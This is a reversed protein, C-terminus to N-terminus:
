HSKDRNELAGDERLKPVRAPERATVEPRSRRAAHLRGLRARRRNGDVTLFLRSVVAVPNLDLLEIVKLREPVPIRRGDIAAEMDYRTVSKASDAISKAGAGGAKSFTVTNGRV